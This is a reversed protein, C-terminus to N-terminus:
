LFIFYESFILGMAVKGVMSEESIVRLDFGPGGCHFPILWDHPGHCPWCVLLLLFACVM